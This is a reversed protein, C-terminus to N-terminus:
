PAEWDISYIQPTGTRRLIVPQDGPGLSLRTGMAGYVRQIGELSAVTEIKGDKVRYRKVEGGAAASDFYLYQGDRSWLWRNWPGIQSLSNWQKSRTDYLSPRGDLAVATIYAGDPSSLSYVLGASGPLDTLKKTELDYIHIRPDPADPWAGLVLSKGDPSWSAVLALGGAVPLPEPTGGNAPVLYLKRTPASTSYAIQTGDPSWIGGYTVRQDSPSLQFRDSGDLRAKWLLGEPYTVYTIWNGDRSVQVQEVSIGNLFPVFRRRNSDYIQLEGQPLAASVFMRPRGPFLAPWTVSLPGTYLPVPEGHRRRLIGAHERLAWIENQRLQVKMYVYYRGDATWSGCCADEGAAFVLHPNGGEATSEWLENPGDHIISYRLIKGDPSIHVGIPEGAATLLKKAGSGDRHVRFIDRGKTYLIDEGEPAFSAEDPEIAGVKRPSGTPVPIIWLGVRSEDLPKGALLETGKPSIDFIPAVQFPLPLKVPEGGETSLQSLMTSDDTLSVQLFYVANAAVFPREKQNPSNTLQRFGTVRPLRAPILADIAIGIALAALLGVGTLALWRRRRSPAAAKGGSESVEAVAKTGSAIQRRLRKLDVNLDRASQYREDRKKELLKGVIRDLEAPLEPNLASPLPPDRHLLSEFILAPTAGTFPLRGTAMEYFVIGLSFLDSRADLAEGRAQEPSMYATTGVAAGTHTIHKEGASATMQDAEGGTYSRKALGFDLIKAQGRATVFINGPKLDRHIIGKEHAANVADSLEIGLDLLAEIDPRKDALYGQLSEGALLEMAIFYEGSDEGVDYITCINPHNLKSAARAERHFRELARPDRADQPLLKLAVERGLRTDQARYVVGM